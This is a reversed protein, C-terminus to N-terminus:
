AHRQALVVHYIVDSFGFRPEGQVIILSFGASAFLDFLVSQPIVSFDNLYRSDNLMLRRLNSQTPVRLLAIGGPLVKALLTRFIQMLSSASTHRTSAVSYLLDCAPLRSLDFSNRCVLLETNSLQTSKLRRRTEYIEPALVDTIALSEAYQSLWDSGRTLEVGFEIIQSLGAFRAGQRHYYGELLLVDEEAFARARVPTYANNFTALAFLDDGDGDAKRDVDNDSMRKAGHSPTEQRHDRDTATEM